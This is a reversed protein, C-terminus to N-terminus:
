NKAFWRTNNDADAIFNPLPVFCQGDWQPDVCHYWVIKDGNANIGDVPKEDLKIRTTGACGIPPLGEGSLYFREVEVMVLEQGPRLDSETVPRYGNCRMRTRVENIMMEDTTVKGRIIPMSDGELSRLKCIYNYVKKLLFDLLFHTLSLDNGPIGSM